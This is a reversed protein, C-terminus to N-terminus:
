LFFLSTQISFNSNSLTFPLYLRRLSPLLCLQKSLFIFCSFVVFIFLPFFSPDVWNKTCLMSCHLVCCFCFLAMPPFFSSSSSLRVFYTNLNVNFFFCCFVSTSFFFFFIGVISTCLPFFGFLGGVFFFCFSFTLREITM